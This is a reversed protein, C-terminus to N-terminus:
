PAGVRVFSLAHRQALPRPGEQVRVAVPARSEIRGIFSDLGFEAGSRQAAFSTDVLYLGPDDFAGDPCLEVLRSTATVRGGPKVRTFSQRDPARADPGPECTLTGNPGSVGFSLSERRFYLYRAEQSRNVISVAVSVQRSTKADSGDLAVLEFPQPPAGSDTAVEAAVEIPPAVLEKIADADSRPAGEGPDRSPERAIETLDPLPTARRAVFPPQQEVVVAERKGKKWVAKTKEAFGFRAVVRAGRRLSSLHKASFCYLRPDFGDVVGEGPNLLLDLDSRPADPRANAPLKCVLPEARKRQTKEPTEAASPALELSLLRLDFQLRVPETGRNVVAVLWPERPSGSLVALRLGLRARGDAPTEATMDVAKKVLLADHRPPEPRPPAAAKAPPSSSPEPGAAIASSAGTLLLSALLGYSARVSM